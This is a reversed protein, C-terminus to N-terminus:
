SGRQMMLEKAEKGSIKDITIEIIAVVKIFRDIEYTPDIGPCYKDSLKKLAEIKEGEDEILRARGFAIVSRFYTTFEEPVVDGKDIVCLSVKPNRCIADIKHGSIASHIYIHDGDYVYNVPLAYPYNDDGAVALVCERGASLIEKSEALPLEQRFRRMKREM